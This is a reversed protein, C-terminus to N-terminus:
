KIKNQRREVAVNDLQMEETVGSNSSATSSAMERKQHRIPTYGGGSV